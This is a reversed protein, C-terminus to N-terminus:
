KLIIITDRNRLYEINYKSIWEYVQNIPITDSDSAPASLAPAVLQGLKQEVTMNKFTNEVWLEDEATLGSLSSDHKCAVSTVLLFYITIFFWKKMQNSTKGM